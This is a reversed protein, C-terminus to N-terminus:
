LWLLCSQSFQGECPHLRPEPSAHAARRRAARRAPATNSRRVTLASLAPPARGLGSSPIAKTVARAVASVRLGQAEPCGPDCLQMTKAEADSKGCEACKIDSLAEEILLLEGFRKLLAAVPLVRRPHLWTTDQRPQRGAAGSSSM